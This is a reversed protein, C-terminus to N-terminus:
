PCRARGLIHGSLCKALMRRLTAGPLAYRLTEGLAIRGEVRNIEPPVQAVEDACLPLAVHAGIATVVRVEHVRMGSKGTTHKAALRRKRQNGFETEFAAGRFM